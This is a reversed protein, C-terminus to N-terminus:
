NIHKLNQKCGLCVVGFINSFRLFKSIQDEEEKRERIQKKRGGCINQKGDKLVPLSDPKAQQKSKSKGSSGKTVTGMGSKPNNQSLAADTYMTPAHQMLLDALIGQSDDVHNHDEVANNAIGDVEKFEIWNGVAKKSFNETFGIHEKGDLRSRAEQMSEWLIQFNWKHKVLAMGCLLSCTGPLNGIKACSYLMKACCKCM